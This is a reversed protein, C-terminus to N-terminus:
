NNNGKQEACKRKKKTSVEFVLSNNKKLPMHSVRYSYHHIFNRKEKENM